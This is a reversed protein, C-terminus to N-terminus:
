RPSVLTDSLMFSLDPLRRELQKGGTQEAEPSSSSRLRSPSTGNHRDSGRRPSARRELHALAASSAAPSSDDSQQGAGPLADSYLRDPLRASAQAISVCESCPDRSQLPTACRDAGTNSPASFGPILTPDTAWAGFGSTDLAPQGQLGANGSAQTPGAERM